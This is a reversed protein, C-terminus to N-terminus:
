FFDPGKLDAPVVEDAKGATKEATEAVALVASDSIDVDGGVAGKSKSGGEIVVSTVKCRSHELPGGGENSSGSTANATDETHARATRIIPDQLLIQLASIHCQIMNYLRLPFNTM